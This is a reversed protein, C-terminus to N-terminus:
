LSYALEIFARPMNRVEVPKFVTAQITFCSKQWVHSCQIQNEHEYTSVDYTKNMCVYGEPLNDPDIAYVDVENLSEDFDGAGQTRLLNDAGFEDEGKYIPWRNQNVNQKNVVQVRRRPKQLTPFQQVM